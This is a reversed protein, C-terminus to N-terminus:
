VPSVLKMKRHHSMLEFCQEASMPEGLLNGQYSHCDHEKLFNLQAQTEVGEALVEMGLSQALVIVCSAITGDDASPIDKIFERDIKLLDIPLHKLYALSSYGTGFDDVAIRCGLEKLVFLKESTDNFDQILLGETIELEILNPPVDYKQLTETVSQIFNADRFQIPSINIAVRTPRGRSIWDAAQKCARDLVWRGVEVIKGNGELIPIFELPPVNAGESTWRILAEFGALKGTEINNQPQFVVNFEDRKIAGALRNELSRRNKLSESMDNTYIALGKKATKAVYMATDAFCFLEDADTTDNPAFSAGISVGVYLEQGEIEMPAAISKIIRDAVSKIDDVSKLHRVIVTFEDGGLRSVLDGDCVNEKIREATIKLVEDGAAHGLSDNIAKFGDMDLVLLSMQDEEKVAQKVQQSLEQQFKHRNALGTLPDFKALQNLQKAKLTLRDTASRLLTDDRLTGFIGPAANGTECQSLGRCNVYKTTAGDHLTLEQEFGEASHNDATFHKKLEDSQELEWVNTFDALSITGNYQKIGCIIFAESSLSVQDTEPDWHWHGVGATEEALELLRTKEKLSETTNELQRTRVNFFKESEFSLWFSTIITGFSHMLRDASERFPNDISLHHGFDIVSIGLLAIMWVSAVRIGILQAALFVILPYYMAAQSFQFETVVTCGCLVLLTAFLFLNAVFTRHAPLKEALKITGFSTACGVAALGGLPLSGFGFLYTASILGWITGATFAFHELLRLRYELSSDRDIYETIKRQWLM